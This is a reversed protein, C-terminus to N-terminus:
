LNYGAGESGRCTPFNLDPLGGGGGAGVAPIDEDDFEPPNNLDFAMARLLLSPSSILLQVLTTKNILQSRNNAGIIKM